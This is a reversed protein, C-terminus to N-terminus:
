VVRALDNLLANPLGEWLSPHLFVDALRLHAAVDAPSELHGTVLIRAADAPSDVAYATLKASEESRAEGIILLRAPRVQRVDRLATLLFDVGKKHRLEGSFVLIAEEPLIGLKQRLAADPVAPSFLNVDVSNHVVHVGAPRGLLVDIKKALNRSAATIQDARELTWLLRSFDGPPFVLRDVDNGRASVTCPLGSSKAFLVAMFGAPYLYHGWVADFKKAEHLWELVNLTHQMSMDWNAYLGLRHLCVGATNEPSNAEVTEL